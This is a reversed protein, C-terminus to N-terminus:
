HVLLVGFGDIYTQNIRLTDNVISFCGMETGNIKILQSCSNPDSNNIIEYSYVGSELVANLNNNSNNNVVTIMQSLPNFDWTVVGPEFFYSAQEFPGNVNLLKWSNFNTTNNQIQSNTTDSNTCSTLFVISFLLTLIRITKM